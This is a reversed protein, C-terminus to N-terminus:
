NSTGQPEHITERLKLYRSLDELGQRSGAEYFRQSVEHGGLQGAGLLKEYIAALDVPMDPPVDEFAAESFLGLGYDIYRMEPTRVQKSYARICGDSFEVNSSDWVNENRFVTMLALKGSNRFNQFVAAYDCPLYSDGYLIFFRSGLLPLARRVAGGTGLLTEGESSYKVEIGFDQGDGVYEIIQEGLFGACVVARTIGSARLLDLQHAIFPRGNIPLLSKPIHETLPRLRTALGGALIAM